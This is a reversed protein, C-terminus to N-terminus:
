FEMTKTFAPMADGDDTELDGGAFQADSDLTAAAPRFLKDYGGEALTRLEREFDARLTKALGWEGSTFDSAIAGALRAAAGLRNVLELVGAPTPMATTADPQQWDASDLSLGRRLMVGAISQAVSRMWGEIIADQIRGGRRFSPVEGCVAEVNTWCQLSASPYPYQVIFLQIASTSSDENQVYVAVQSSGGAPGVLDAPITARLETASVFTTAVLVPCGVQAGADFGAGLCTIVTGPPGSTPSISTLTPTAM